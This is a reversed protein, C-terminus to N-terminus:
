SLNTEPDVCIPDKTISNGAHSSYMKGADFFAAKKTNYNLIFKTNRPAAGAGGIQTYVIQMSVIPKHSIVSNITIEGYKTGKYMEDVTHAGTKIYEHVNGAVDTTELGNLYCSYTHHPSPSLPPNEHNPHSPHDPSMNKTMGHFLNWVIFGLILLLILIAVGKQWPKLTDWM